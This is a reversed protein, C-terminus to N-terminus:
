IGALHDIKMNYWFKSWAVRSAVDATIEASCGTETPAKM